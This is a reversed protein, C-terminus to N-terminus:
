DGYPDRLYGEVAFDEGFRHLRPSKIHPANSLSPFGNGTAFPVATGALIMPAYFLFVKDVVGSVLADGNILSGGEILLSTIELNGLLEVVAPFNPRSDMGTPTVQQVRVGREQLARKKNEDASSCIVLVDEAATKVIRSGVPVRLRSDLIVRLLPRRRPRGTRDNLLPDDAIVTGVGTLIADHQHRLEQVYSRSTEGTIWRESAESSKAPPPSIKGDLTMAAKLTVFPLKYRIYRAFAENLIAAEEELIGSAVVIGADRLRQFGKGGVLPNPDKISAVVRTIGSSIIAETCPGSRGHHVCPELNVYITAGRARDGAQELAVVEAHKTNSYIHFGSGVVKGTSDVVVAGVSPNPSTLAIGQRALALAQHLYLEDISRDDNV